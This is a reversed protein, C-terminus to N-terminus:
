NKMRIKNGPRRRYYALGLAGLGLAAAYESPEPVAATVTIATGPTDDYFGSGLFTLTRSAAVWSVHFFGFEGDGNRFGIAGNPRDVVWDPALASGNTAHLVGYDFSGLSSVSDGVAYYKLARYGSTYGEFAVAAGNHGYLFLTTGNTLRTYLQDNPNSSDSLDQVVFGPGHTGTGLINITSGNTFVDLTLPRIAADGIATQGLVSTLM